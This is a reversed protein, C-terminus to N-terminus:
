NGGSEAKWTDPKPTWDGDGLFVAAIEGLGCELQERAAAEGADNWDSQKVFRRFAEPTPKVERHIIALLIQALSYSVNQGEVDGFSRGIWFKQITEANWYARHEDILDDNLPPPRHGSLDYEFARALAENLWRPLPLHALLNHAMEHAIIQREIDMTYAEQYAIHVYGGQLCVGGSSAHEGDPYFHSIYAFYDDTDTFRLVIHKGTASIWAVDGLTRLLASRAQELFALMRNRAKEDLASLLHFHESEVVTYAGGLAARLRTTWHRVFQVWAEHKDDKGVWARM